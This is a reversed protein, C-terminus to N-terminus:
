IYECMFKIFPDEESLTRTYWSEIKSLTNEAVM